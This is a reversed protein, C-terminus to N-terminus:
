SGCAEVGLKVHSCIVKSNHNQILNSHM